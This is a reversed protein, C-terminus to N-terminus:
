KIKNKKNNKEVGRYKYFIFIFFLLIIFIILGNSLNVSLLSKKNIETNM